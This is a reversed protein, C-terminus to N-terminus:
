IKFYYKFMVWFEFLDADWEQRKGKCHGAWPSVSYSTKKIASTPTHACTHVCANGLLEEQHVM